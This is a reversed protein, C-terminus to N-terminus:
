ENSHERLHYWIYEYRARGGGNKLLNDIIPSDPPLCTTRALQEKTPYKFFVEEFYEGYQDYDNYESTLIWVKM